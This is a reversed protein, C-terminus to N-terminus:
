LGRHGGTQVTGSSGPVCRPPGCAAYALLDSQTLKTTADAQEATALGVFRPYLTAASVSENARGDVPKSRCLASSSRASINSSRQEAHAQEHRLIRAVM